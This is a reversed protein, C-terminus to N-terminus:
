GELCSLATEADRRGEKYHSIRGDIFAIFEEFTLTGVDDKPAGFARKREGELMAIAEDNMSVIKELIRRANQNTM